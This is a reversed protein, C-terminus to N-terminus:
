QVYGTSGGMQGGRAILVIIGVVGIVMLLLSVLVIITGVLPLKNFIKLQGESSKNLMTYETSTNDTIESKMETNLIGFISGVFGILGMFVVAILLGLLVGQVNMNGRKNKLVSKM